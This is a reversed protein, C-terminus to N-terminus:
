LKRKTNKINSIIRYVIFLDYFSIAAHRSYKSNKLNSRKFILIQNKIEEVTESAM